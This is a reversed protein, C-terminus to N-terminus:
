RGLRRRLARYFKQYEGHRLLYLARSLLMQYRFVQSLDAPLFQVALSMTSQADNPLLPYFVGKQGMITFCAKKPDASNVAIEVRLTLVEGGRPAKLLPFNLRLSDQALLASASYSQRAITKGKENVLTLAVRKINALSEPTHNRIALEAGCITNAPFIFRQELTQQSARVILEVQEGRPYLFSPRTYVIGLAPDSEPLPQLESLMDLLTQEEATLPSDTAAPAKQEAFPLVFISAYHQPFRGSQVVWGYFYLKDSENATILKDAKSLANLKTEVSFNKVDHATHQFLPRFLDLVLPVTPKQALTFHEWSPTYIVLDPCIAAILEDQNYYTWLLSRSNEDLFQLEAQSYQNEPLACITEHDTTGLMNILQEVRQARETRPNSDLRVQSFLLIKM